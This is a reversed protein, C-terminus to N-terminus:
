LCHTKTHIHVYILRVKLEEETQVARSCVSLNGPPAPSQDGLWARLRRGKLSVQEGDPRDPTSTM